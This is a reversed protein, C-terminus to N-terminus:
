TRITQNLKNNKPENYDKTRNNAFWFFDSVEKPFDRNKELLEFNLHKTFPTVEFSLFPDQVGENADANMMEEHDKFIIDNWAWVIGIQSDLRLYYGHCEDEPVPMYDFDWWELPKEMLTCGDTILKVIPHDARHGKLQKRIDEPTVPELEKLITEYYHPKGSKYLRVAKRAEDEIQDFAERDNEIIEEFREITYDMLYYWPQVKIKECFSKIFLLFIQELKPSNRHLKTLVTGVEFGHFETPFNCYSYITIHYRSGKKDVNFYFDHPLLKEFKQLIYHLKEHLELKEPVTFAKKLLYHANSVCDYLDTYLAEADEDDHDADNYYKKIRCGTKYFVESGPKSKLKLSHLSSAIINGNEKASENGQCTLPREKTGDQISSGFEPSSKSGNNKKPM